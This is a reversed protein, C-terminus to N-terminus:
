YKNNKINNLFYERSEKQKVIPKVYNKINTKYLFKEDYLNKADFGKLFPLHKKMYIADKDFKKAQEYPNFIRFYPQADIGTSSCWQWSLVNSSIDYDMLYRAFFKEGEQWPLFLQKCFFSAAIMRARNHMFGTTKLEVISADVIPVGTRANIFSEYRSKDFEFSVQFKFDEYEVFPFHFLLYAYFERFILQRFFSDTRYGEENLIHLYRLIERVSITGYRLDLSFHSTADKSLFDRKDKYEDIKGKLKDLKYKPNEYLIPNKNFGISEIKLPTKQLIGNEIAYLYEYNYKYLTNIARQYKFSYEKGYIEKVKNYFPTFVRYADGDKKLIENVDFIYSDNLRTFDMITEVLKDRKISYDDYEVSAYVKFFGESNLFTFVELPTSYFILLDLGMSKLDLKLSLLQKFLFSVRKDDRSLSDLINKDFIFIPLVEEEVTLLKVDDIRLDRRFWLISKM